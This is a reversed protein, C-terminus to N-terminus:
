RSMGTLFPDARMPEVKLLGDETDEPITDPENVVIKNPNEPIGDSIVVTDKEDGDQRLKSKLQELESDIKELTDPEPEPTGPATDPKPEPTVTARDYLTDGPLPKESWKCIYVTIGHEIRELGHRALCEENTEDPEKFVYRIGGMAFRIEEVAKEIKRITRDYKM